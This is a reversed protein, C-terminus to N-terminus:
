RDTKFQETLTSGAAAVNGLSFINQEYEYSM